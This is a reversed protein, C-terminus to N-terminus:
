LYPLICRLTLTWRAAEVRCAVVYKIMNSLRAVIQPYEGDCLFRYCGLL